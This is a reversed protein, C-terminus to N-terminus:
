LNFWSKFKGQSESRLIRDLNSNSNNDIIFDVLEIPVNEIQVDAHIARIFEVIAGEALPDFYVVKNGDEEKIFVSTINRFERINTWIEALLVLYSSDCRRGALENILLAFGEKMMDKDICKVIHHHTEHIINLGLSYMCKKAKYSHINKTPPVGFETFLKPGTIASAEMYPALNIKIQCHGNVFGYSSEEGPILEFQRERLLPYVTSIKKKVKNKNWNDVLSRLNQADGLGEVFGSCESDFITPYKQLDQLLTGINLMLVYFYRSQDPNVNLGAKLLTNYFSTIISVHSMNEIDIEDPISEMLKELSVACQVYPEVKAVVFEFVVRSNSKEVESLLANRISVDVPSTLSCREFRQVLTDKDVKKVDDLCQQEIDTFKREFIRVGECSFFVFAFFLGTIVKLLRVVWM